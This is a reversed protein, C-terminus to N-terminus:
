AADGGRLARVLRAFQGESSRLDAVAGQEIAAGEELVIVRDFADLWHLRHTAFMVLRGEMLALMDRKLDYETEIDLHATPEDFLVIKRKDDLFVRALAIRQAQGGSLGHGGEGIPTDLGQPLREVLDRLGLVDLAANLRDDSAQGCYFTLNDRLSAAFLYPDQPIYAIQDQWAQQRLTTTSRGDDFDFTGASPDELGALIRLLTSKGSGSTGIIGIREHGSLDLSIADLAHATGYEKALGRITLTSSASWPPINVAPPEEGITTLMMQITKLSNVGDLSAHYDSAYERIPRFYEPTLILVFLAPLLTLSGDILRLGLMISVAAIALTAFLDLVSGSLTATKLTRMTAERFRESVEFVRQAYTTSVEFTSLTSIGRVSDIFHNSMAKFTAHQVRGRDATTKGILVMILVMSPLLIVVVIGSVWDAAFIVIAFAVPLVVMNVMKPLVIALYDRTKDIGDLLMSATTGTGFAQVAPAGTEFIMSFLEERLRVAQANAYHLIFAERLNLVIRVCVFSCSFVTLYFLAETFSAGEWLRVLARSLGVAQGIICAAEFCSFVLLVCLM